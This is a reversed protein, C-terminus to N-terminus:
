KEDEDFHFASSPMAPHMQQARAKALKEKDTFKNIIIFIAVVGVVALGMFVYSLISMTKSSIANYLKSLFSGDNADSRISGISSTYVQNGNGDTVPIAKYYNAVNSNTGGGFCSFGSSQSQFKDPHVEMAARLIGDMEEVSHRGDVTYTKDNYVVTGDKIVDAFESRYVDTAEYEILANSYMVSQGFNTLAMLLMVAALAFYIKRLLKQVKEKSEEKINDLSFLRGKGTIAGYLVYIGMALLLIPFLYTM